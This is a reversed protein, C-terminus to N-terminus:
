VSQHLFQARLPGILLDACVAGFATSYFAHLVQLDSEVAMFSGIAATDIESYEGIPVPDEYTAIM